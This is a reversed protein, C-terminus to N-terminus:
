SSIMFRRCARITMYITLIGAGGLLTGSTVLGFIVVGGIGVMLLGAIGGVAFTTMTGPGDGPGPRGDIM